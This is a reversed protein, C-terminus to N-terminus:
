RAHVTELIQKNPAVHIWEPCPPVAHRDLTLGATEDALRGLSLLFQRAPENRETKRYPLRVKSCGGSTADVVARLFATEVGLGLVRCSLLLTEFSLAGQDERVVAAGVLGADGFRDRYRLSYIARRPDAMAASLEAEGLRVPDLNLQNTKQHLQALRPLDTRANVALGLTIELSRLYDRRSATSTALTARRREQEILEDRRSDEGSTAAFLPWPVSRLAAAFGLPDEPLDLLRVGPFAQAVDERERPNDDVYLLADAAIHLTELIRAVSDSKSHWGIEVVAFDKSRLVMAPHADLIALADKPNNKSAIALQVGAEKWALLERQFALFASGPHTEGLEVAELGAEGALGGWLTNDLDVVVAKIGRGAGLLMAPLLADAIAAFGADSYRIRGLEWLRPDLATASGVARLAGDLDVVRAGPRTAMAEEMANAARRWRWALSRGDRDRELPYVTNQPAPPLACLVHAARDRLRDVRSLIEGVLGGIEEDGFPHAADHFAPFAGPDDLALVAVDFREAGSSIEGEMAGYEFCRIQADFGEIRLPAELFPAIPRWTTSAFVGVAFPTGGNTRLSELFARQEPTRAAQRWRRWLLATPTAPKELFASSM